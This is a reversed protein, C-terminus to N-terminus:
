AMEATTEVSSAWAVAPSKGFESLNSESLNCLPRNHLLPFAVKFSVLRRQLQRRKLEPHNCHRVPPRQFCARESLRHTDDVGARVRGTDTRSTHFAAEDWIVVTHEDAALM